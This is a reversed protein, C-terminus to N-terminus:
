EPTGGASGSGSGTAGSDGSSSQPGSRRTLTLVLLNAVSFFIVAVFGCRELWHSKPSFSTILITLWGLMTCAVLCRGSLAIYNIAPKSSLFNM